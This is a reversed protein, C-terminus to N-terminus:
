DFQPCILDFWLIGGDYLDVGNVGGFFGYRVNYLTRQFTSPSEIQSGGSYVTLSSGNLGRDKDLSVVFTYWEGTEINIPAGATTGSAYVMMQDGVTNTLNVYCTNFTPATPGNGLAMIKYFKGVAPAREIYISFKVTVFSNSTVIGTGTGFDCRASTESSDDDPLEIRLARNCAGDPKYLTLASSDGYSTINAVTGLETWVNTEYGVAPDQFGEAFYSTGNTHNATVCAPTSGQTTFQYEASVAVLGGNASSSRVQYYYDTSPQLGSLPVVHSKGATNVMTSDAYDGTAQGYWVINNTSSIDTTWTINVETSSVLDNTVSSIIPTSPASVAPVFLWFASCVSAALLTIALISLKTKM